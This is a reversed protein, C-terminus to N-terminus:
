IFDKITMKKVQQVLYDDALSRLYSLTMNLSRHGMLRKLGLLDQTSKYYSSAFTHRFRHLHCNIHTVKSLLTIFHKAGHETLAIDQTGSVWLLPTNYQDRYNLYDELYPILENNLPIIRARKSKSTYSRVIVTKKQLDIDSLAIQLLETKRVGTFLLFMVIAINRKKILLNAWRINTNIAHCITEIERSTFARPDTYSVDPYQMTDFPNKALYKREGLWKFFSNLKGRVTAAASKKYERVVYERGVKRKRTNLFEFFNIMTEETLDKLAIDPNYQLLLGFNYCYSKITAPATGLINVHYKIFLEHLGKLSKKERHKSKSRTKNKSNILSGKPM